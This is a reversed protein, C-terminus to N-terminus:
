QLGAMEEEPIDFNAHVKQVDEHDDLAELLNIVKRAMDGGCRITNGPIQAIQGSEIPCLNGKGLLSEVVPIAASKNALDTVAPSNRIEKCYSQAPLTSLDDKNMGEGGLSFNASHLAANIMLASVTRPIKLYGNEHFDLKQQNTLQM